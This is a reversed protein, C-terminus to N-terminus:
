RVRAEVRARVRARVRVLVGLYARRHAHVGVPRRPVLTLAHTGHEAVETTVPL